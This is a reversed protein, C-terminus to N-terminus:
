DFRMAEKDEKNLHFPDLKLDAESTYILTQECGIKVMGEIQPDHYQGVYGEKKEIISNRIVSQGGCSFNM